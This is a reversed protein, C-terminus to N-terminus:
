GGTAKKPGKWRGMLRKEEETGGFFRKVFQHWHLAGPKWEAEFRDRYICIWQWAEEMNMSRPHPDDVVEAALWDEPGDRELRMETELIFRVLQAEWADASLPRDFAGWEALESALRDFFRFPTSWCSVARAVLDPFRAHNHFRDFVIEFSKLQMIDDATMADSAIIEHPAADRYRFGLRRAVAEMETGHLIKLFGLQIVHSQMAYLENFSRAFGEITEGPLGAILDLHLHVNGAKRLRQVVKALHAIDQRRHVNGLIYPDTTQVGIEFQFLGAPATKLLQLSQEDLLDAEVEFHFHTRQGPSHTEILHSWIKRARASDANFSRDIFKVLMTDRRVLEDLEALVTDLDRFRVSRDLSSLCYTCSFPCGRSSEYYLMRHETSSLPEDTSWLFPISDLDMPPNEPGYLFATQHSPFVSGTLSAAPATQWAAPAPDTLSVAPIIQPDRCIMGPVKQALRAMLGPIQAPKLDVPYVAQWLADAEAYPLLERMEDLSAELEDGSMKQWAEERKERVVCVLEKALVTIQEEGEGCLVFDIFPSRVLEDEASYAVEPGGCGILVDRHAKKLFEADERVADINWIYSSFLYVDAWTQYLQRARRDAPDNITLETWILDLEGTELLDKLRKRMYVYISRIAPNTHTFRANIGVLVIRM